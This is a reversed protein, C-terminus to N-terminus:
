FISNVNIRIVYWDETEGKFSLLAIRKNKGDFFMSYENGVDSVVGYKFLLNDLDEQTHEYSKVYYTSKLDQTTHTIMTEGKNVFFLSNYEVVDSCNNWETKDSDWYCTYKDSTSWSVQASSVFPFFFLSFLFFMKKM